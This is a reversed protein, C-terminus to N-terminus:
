KQNKKLIKKISKNIRDRVEGKELVTVLNVTSKRRDFTPNFEEAPVRFILPNCKLCDCKSFCNMHVKGSRM